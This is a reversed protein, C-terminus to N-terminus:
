DEGHEAESFFAAGREVKAWFVSASSVGVLAVEDSDKKDRLVIFQTEPHMCRDQRMMELKYEPTCDICFGVRIHSGSLSLLMCWHSFQSASEFCPPHYGAYRNLVSRPDRRRGPEGKRGM